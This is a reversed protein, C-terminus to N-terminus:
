ISDPDYLLVNLVRHNDQILFKVDALPYDHCTPMWQADPVEVLAVQPESSVVVVGWFYVVLEHMEGVVADCTLWLVKIFRWDFSVHPRTVHELLIQSFLISSCINVGCFYLWLHLLADYSTYECCSVHHYMAFVSMLHKAVVEHDVSVEVHPKDLDIWAWRHLM